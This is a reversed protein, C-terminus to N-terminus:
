NARRPMRFPLLVQVWRQNFRDLNLSEHVGTAVEGELGMQITSRAYFPTDELTKLLKVRSSADSRTIRAVQWNINPLRIRPPADIAASGGKAFFRHAITRRTQDQQTLDYYVVADGNPLEARSWDWGQFDDELPASGRNSDMYGSGAWTLDPHTMEVEIRACPAIPGWHHQGNSHLTFDRDNLVIPTIRITGRIRRPFPVAIENVDVIATGNEWRLSSPGIKLHTPGRDLASAGRETMAWRSGPRGYLAVNMACHNEAPVPGKERAWAYYPSFVSGILAIITIGHRGDDSLGDLYWWAYGNSGIKIDLRPGGDPL